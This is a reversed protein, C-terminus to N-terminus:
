WSVEEEEDEANQEKAKEEANLTDVLAQAEDRDSFGLSSIVKKQEEITMGEPDVVWKASIYGDENYDSMHPSYWVKYEGAGRNERKVETAVHETIYYETKLKACTCSEFLNRGLPTTYAVRRKDDCKDCKDGHVRRYDIKYKPEALIAALETLKMSFFEQKAKREASEISHKLERELTKADRELRGVNAVKARLEANDKELRELRETIEAKVQQRLMDKFEDVKEDYESPEPGDYDDYFDRYSM